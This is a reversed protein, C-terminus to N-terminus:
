EDNAEDGDARVAWYAIGVLILIFCVWINLYEFLVLIVAVVTVEVGLRLWKMFKSM